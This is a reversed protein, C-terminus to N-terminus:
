QNKVISIKRDDFSSIKECFDVFQNFDEVMYRGKKLNFVRIYRIVKGDSFIESNYNGFETTLITKGPLQDASYGAPMKIVITDTENYARRINIDSKREKVRAPPKLSKTMLNPNLLIRNGMVTGYGPLSLNVNEHIVPVMKKEESHSFSILNFGPISIRSQVFKKRDTGDMLLVKYIDDYFIGNYDTSFTANANGNAALEVVAKRVQRNDNITYKRTKVVTGGESGTVLVYRDDTFKGIYGFPITQSTCELWITDSRDPVCLIVHNFQNSPFDTKLPPIDEGADALTYYSMIGTIDLLSKMYNVLAKCDGYSLRDVSEAEIPQWGGIGVQVNVYRVKGQMYRYLANIKERNNDLGSVLNRVKETTAPNLANRGKNLTNMWMGFNYWSDLNGKFGAIEFDSPALYVVPTFEKIDEGYPEKKVAPLNETMWTYVTKENEDTIICNGTQNSEKYRFKFGKPTIVKLSSKEVAVNYDDYVEWAPYYFLGDYVIEYTFEVTFPFTRYKPDLVKVRNDEFLSYGAIAANDKVEINAANKIVVGDSDYLKSQIKRITIFKDYYETLV